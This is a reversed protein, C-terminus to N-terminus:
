VPRVIPRHATVPIRRSATPPRCNRKDVSKRDSKPGAVENRREAERGLLLLAAHIEAPRRAVAVNSLGSAWMHGIMKYDLVLGIAARYLMQALLSRATVSKGAGSGMSLGVHPSDGSLSFKVLAARKGLGWILDDPKVPDLATRVDAVTVRAPPPQSAMVELKPAPLGAALAGGTGRHQAQRRVHLRAAGQGQREPNYGPPLEAVARTRDPEIALWSSAPRAAPIGVLPAAVLHLPEIWPNLDGIKRLVLFGEGPFRPRM